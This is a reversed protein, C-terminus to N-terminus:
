DRFIFIKQKDVVETHILYQLIEDSGGKIFSYLSYLLLMVKINQPQKTAAIVYPVGKITVCELYKTEYGAQRIYDIMYDNAQESFTLSRSLEHHNLRYFLVLEPPVQDLTVLDNDYRNPEEETDTELKVPTAPAPILDVFEMLVEDLTENIIEKTGFIKDWWYKIKDKMYKLHLKKLGQIM